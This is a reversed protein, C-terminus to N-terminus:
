FECFGRSFTKSWWVFLYKEDVPFYEADFYIIIQLAKWTKVDGM